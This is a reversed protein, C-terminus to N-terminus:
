SRFFIAYPSLVLKKEGKKQHTFDVKVPSDTLIEGSKSYIPPSLVKFVLAYAIGLLM